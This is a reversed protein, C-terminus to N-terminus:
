GRRDHRHQACPTLAAHHTNTNGSLSLTSWDLLVHSRFLCLAICVSRAFCLGSHESDHLLTRSKKRLECSAEAMALANMLVAEYGVPIDRVSVGMTAQCISLAEDVMAVGVQERHHELPPALGTEFVMRVNDKGGSETVIVNGKHDIAVGWPGAFTSQLAPGDVPALQGDVSALGDGAFTSVVDGVIKRVVNNSFDAVLLTGDASLALGMPGDFQACLRHGDKYGGTSGAFTTVEGTPYKCLRIRDNGSDAV